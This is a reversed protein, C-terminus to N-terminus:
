LRYLRLGNPYNDYPDVVKIDKFFSYQHCVAGLEVVDYRYKELFRKALALEVARENRYARNPLERVYELEVKGIKFTKDGYNVAPYFIMQHIHNCDFLQYDPYHERLSDAKGGFNADDCLISTNRRDIRKYMEYTQWGFDGGDLYVFSYENYDFTLGDGVIFNLDIKGIFDALIKKCNEIAIPDIDVITVSGGNKLIYDCWYIDAFGDGALAEPVDARSAGITLIRPKDKFVNKIVWEFVPKRDHHKEIAAKYFENM